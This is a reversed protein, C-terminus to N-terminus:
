SQKNACVCELWRYIVIVKRGGLWVIFAYVCVCVCVYSYVRTYFFYGPLFVVISLIDFKATFKPIMLYKVTYM